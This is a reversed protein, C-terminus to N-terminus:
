VYTKYLRHVSLKQPRDSPIFSPSPLVLSPLSQSSVASYVPSSSIHHICVDSKTPFVHQQNRKDILSPKNNTRYMVNNTYTHSFVHTSSSDQTKRCHSLCFRGQKINYNSKTLLIIIFISLIFVVFSLPIVIYFLIKM